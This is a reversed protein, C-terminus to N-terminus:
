DDPAGRLLVPEKQYSDLLKNGLYDEERESVEVEEGDDNTVVLDEWGIGMGVSDDSPTISATVYVPVEVEEDDPDVLKTIISYTTM